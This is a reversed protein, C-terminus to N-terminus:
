VIGVRLDDLVSALGPANLLTVVRVPRLKSLARDYVAINTSGDLRSPYIIGDPMAPHDHFAVSWQRALSQNSGRAVATPVGMRIAHHDRLDVLTLDSGVEIEAYRRMTLESEAILFDEVHGDRQDRLVAELFCVRTSAGLYLVGFRNAAVRRRPDSFRSPSKGFGLPNLYRDLYIRGFRRGASVTELELAAKAFDAPPPTGAM